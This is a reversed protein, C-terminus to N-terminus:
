TVIKAVKHMLPNVQRITILRLVVRLVDGM